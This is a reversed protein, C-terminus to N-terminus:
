LQSVVKTVQFEVTKLVEDAPGLVEVRWPGIEHAQIVKSSYTRWAASKVPLTVRAREIPGFYWVHTIEIPDNAGLIQTFCFLKNVTVVFSEGTEVPEMETIERCIASRAVELSATKQLSATEQARVTVVNCLTLTIVMAMIFLSCCLKKM